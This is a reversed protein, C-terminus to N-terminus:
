LPCSPSGTPLAVRGFRSGALQAGALVLGSVLSRFQAPAGGKGGSGQSDTVLAHLFGLMWPDRDLAIDSPHPSPPSSPSM